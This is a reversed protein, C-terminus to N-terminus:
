ALRHRFLWVAASMSVLGILALPAYQSLLMPITSGELFVGRVIILFYRMPNIYTLLQVAKPMNAIPTAFGSLIIAPVLFLFVGLLGQQQTVALSSIMLGIGIAALLFFFMGLALAAVSGVFPVHFWLVAMLAIFGGELGGIVFGPIAKGILIELPRMPTVLLQDFTGMERERAVSLGTVLLTVVLTLQAVLGPVIFWRSRLNPNFWARMVLQAPPGRQSHAAAWQQNFDLLVGSVDNLALAATNSDRGDIIIQLRAPKQTLLDRTFHQGIHLVLLADKDNILPAIQADNNITAVQRFNPSGSFRALLQRAAYGSDQNYVAYPIHNLDFSAAYGFVMLQILPPGILVTRSAADRLVALFEKIVLAVIRAWM